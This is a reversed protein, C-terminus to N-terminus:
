QAQAQVNVQSIILKLNLHLCEQEAFTEWAMANISLGHNVHCVTIPNCISPSIINKNNLSAIAHLLVQSDVGGSYAIVLPMEPHKSIASTLASEISNM